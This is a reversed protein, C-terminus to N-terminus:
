AAARARGRQLWTLRGCAVENAGLLVLVVIALVGLVLPREGTTQTDVARVVTIDAGSTQPLERFRELLFGARMDPALAIVRVPIKERGYVAIIQELPPFDQGDYDLDSMLIVAPNEIRDRRIITRALALGRSIRTGGTLAGTWPSALYRQAGSSLIGLRPRERAPVPAFFRGLAKVQAPDTGPPFVEYAVDSFVVLGYRRGSEAAEELAQAVQRYERPGVSGSVDLVIVGDSGRAVLSPTAAEGRAAVVAGGLAAVLAAALGLRLLRSRRLDSRLEATGALPIRSADTSM